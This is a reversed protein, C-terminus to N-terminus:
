SEVARTSPDPFSRLTDDLAAFFPEGEKRLQRLELLCLHPQLEGPWRKVAEELVSVAQDPRSAEVYVHALALHPQMAGPSREVAQQALREAKAFDHADLAARVDGPVDCAHTMRAALLASLVLSVLITARM